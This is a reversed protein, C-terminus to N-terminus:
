PAHREAQVEEIAYHAGEVHLRRGDPGVYRMYGTGGGTIRMGRFEKGDITTVTVPGNM